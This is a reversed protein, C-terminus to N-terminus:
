GPRGAECHRMLLDVDGRHAVLWDDLKMPLLVARGNPLDAAARGAFGRSDPDLIVYARGFKALLGHEEAVVAPAATNNAVACVSTVGCSWLAAGKKAGEAIVVIDDHPQDVADANWLRGSTGKAWRYKDSGAASLLRYQMSVLEGGRTWPITLADGWKGGFRALGFGHAAIASESIGGELLAGILDLRAWLAAQYDAEATAAALLRRAQERHEAELAASEAIRRQFEARRSALWVPDPDAGGTLRACAEQFNVHDRRMVYAIADQPKGDTCKRCWWAPPHEGHPKTRVVMRDSDPAGGGCFPCPGCMSSASEKRLTTDAGILTVLDVGANIAFTDYSARPQLVEAIM